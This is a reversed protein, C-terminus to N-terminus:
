SNLVSGEDVTERVLVYDLCTPILQEFCLLYGPDLSVFAM